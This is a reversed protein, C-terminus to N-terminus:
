SSSRLLSKDLVCQDIAHGSPLSTKVTRQCVFIYGKTTASNVGWAYAGSRYLPTSPSSITLLSLFM